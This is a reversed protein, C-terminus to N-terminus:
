KCKKIENKFIMNEIQEQGYNSFTLEETAGCRPCEPEPSFQLDDQKDFCLASYKFTFLNLCNRCLFEISNSNM